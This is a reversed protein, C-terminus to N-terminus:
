CDLVEIGSTDMSDRRASATQAQRQSRETRFDRELSSSNINSTCGVTPCSAVLHDPVESLKTPLRRSGGYQVCLLAIAGELSLVHGCNKNKVPNEIPKGTYPCRKIQGEINTAIAAVDDDEDDDGSVTAIHKQVIEVSEANNVSHRDRIREAASVGSHFLDMFDQIPANNNLEANLQRSMEKSASRRADAEAEIKSLEVACQKMKELQVSLHQLTLRPNICPVKERRESGM